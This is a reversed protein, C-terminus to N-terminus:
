RHSSNKSLFDTKKYKEKLILRFINLLSVKNRPVNNTKETSFFCFFEGNEKGAKKLSFNKHKRRFKGAEFHNGIQKTKNPYVLFILRHIIKTQEKEEM